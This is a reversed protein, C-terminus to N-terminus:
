APSPSRRRVRYVVTGRTAAEASWRSPPGSTIALGRSAAEALLMDFAERTLAARFVPFGDLRFGVSSDGRTQGTYASQDVLDMRFRPSAWSMRSVRGGRSELIINDSTLTMRVPRPAMGSFALWLAFGASPYAAFLIALYVGATAPSFGGGGHYLMTDSIVTPLGILIIFGGVAGVYIRAWRSYFAASALSLDIVKPPSTTM